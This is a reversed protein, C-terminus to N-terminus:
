LYLGSTSRGPNSGPCVSGFDATSGNCWRDIATCLYPLKAFQAILSTNKKSFEHLKSKQVCLVATFHLLEDFLGINAGQMIKTIM